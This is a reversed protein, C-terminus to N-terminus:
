VQKKSVTNYITKIQEIHVNLHRLYDTMLFGLPIEVGDRIPWVHELATRDVYRIIHAIHVNMYRWLNLLDQWSHDQYHQINVWHSNDKSYDPFNLHETLQLRVIRQTNNSASDVLHGLVQKISWEDPSIPKQLTATPYQIFIQYAEVTNKVIDDALETWTDKIEGTM